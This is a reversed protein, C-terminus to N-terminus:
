SVAVLRGLVRAGGCVWSVGMFCGHFVLSVGTFGLEFQPPSKRLGAGARIPFVPPVIPGCATPGKRYSGVGAFFLIMGADQM